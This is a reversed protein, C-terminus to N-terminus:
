VDIISQKNCLQIATPSHPTHQNLPHPLKHAKNPEQVEEDAGKIEEGRWESYKTSFSCTINWNRKCMMNFYCQIRASETDHEQFLELMLVTINFM